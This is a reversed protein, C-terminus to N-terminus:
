LFVEVYLVGFKVTILSVEANLLRAAIKEYLTNEWKGNHLIKNTYAEVVKVHTGFKVNRLVRNLTLCDSKSM